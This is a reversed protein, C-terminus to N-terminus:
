CLGNEKELLEPELFEAHEYDYDVADCHAHVLRALLVLVAGCALAEDEAVDVVEDVDEEGDLHDDFYQRHAQVALLGVQALHPIAEVAEDDYGPLKNM